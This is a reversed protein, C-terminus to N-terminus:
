SRLNGAAGLFIIACRSKRGKASINKLYTAISKGDTNLRSKLPIGGWHPLGTMPGLNNLTFAQTLNDLSLPTIVRVM